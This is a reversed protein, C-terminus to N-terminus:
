VSKRDRRDKRAFRHGAQRMLTGLIRCLGGGCPGCRVAGEGRATPPAGHYASGLGGTPAVLSTQRAGSFLNSRFEAYAGVAHAVAFPVKVVRPPRRAMIRAASDGLQRWSVPKAHALFYTLDSNPMPGWRM